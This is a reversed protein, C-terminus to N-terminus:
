KVLQKIIDDFAVRKYSGSPKTALNKLSEDAQLSSFTFDASYRKTGATIALSMTQPFTSSNLQTFDAYDCTVDLPTGQTTKLIARELLQRSTDVIFQLAQQKVAVHQKAPTLTAKKGSHSIQFDAETPKTHQGLVFLENWFIAQFTYFDAGSNRLAEIERWPVQVYQKNIRDQVFLYDPTLEMRGVEFLGLATLSIQIIENRKMKLTGGASLSRGNAALSVNLHARIGNTSQSNRQMQAVVQEKKQQQEEQTHINLSTADTTGDADEKMAKRRSACSVIFLAALGIILYKKM